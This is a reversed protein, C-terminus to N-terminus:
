RPGHFIGKLCGSVPLAYDIFHSLIHPSCDRTQNVAPVLSKIMKPVDLDLRIKVPYLFSKNAVPQVTRTDFGPPTSIKRVRGSLGQSGGLRKYLSYRIHKWPIFRSLRPTSWRDRDLASTLSLTSGYRQEGESCGHGTRPYFKGLGREGTTCCGPRSKSCEGGDVASVLFAHLLEGTCRNTESKVQCVAPTQLIGEVRSV